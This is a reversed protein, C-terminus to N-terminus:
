LAREASSETLWGPAVFFIAAPPEVPRSKGGVIVAVLMARYKVLPVTGAVRGIALPRDVVYDIRDVFNCVVGNRNTLAVAARPAINRKMHILVENIQAETNCFLGRIRFAQEDAAAHGSISSALFASALFPKM